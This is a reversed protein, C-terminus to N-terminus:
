RRYVKIEKNVTAGINVFGMSHGYFGTEGITEDPDMLSFGAFVEANKFEYKAEIYTSYQLKNTPLGNADNKRADAGYVNTAVLISLPFDETGNYSASVEFVHGTLTDNYEFYNNESAFEDPFFYDTLGVSVKEDMFTYFVYLDAEQGGALTTTFAGWTGIALGGKSYELGPQISPSHGFDTGRWVYRSMLDVSIDFPSKSEEEQGFTLTSMLTLALIFLLQATKILITEM